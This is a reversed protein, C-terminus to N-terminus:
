KPGKGPEVDKPISDKEDEFLDDLEEEDSDDKLLEDLDIGDDLDLDDDEDLIVDDEQEPDDPTVNQLNLPPKLDMKQRGCCSSMGMNPTFAFDGATYGKVSLDLEITILSTKEKDFQLTLKGAQPDWNESKVGPMSKLVSDLRAKGCSCCPGSFSFTESVLTQTFSASPPLLLFLACFCFSM